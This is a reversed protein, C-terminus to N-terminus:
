LRHTPSRHRSLFTMFGIAKLMTKQYTVFISGLIYRERGRRSQDVVYIAGIRGLSATVLFHLDGAAVLVFSFSSQLLYLMM